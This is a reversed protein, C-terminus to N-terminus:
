LKKNNCTSEPRLVKRGHKPNLANALTGSEKTGSVPNHLQLYNYILQFYKLTFMILTLHYPVQM